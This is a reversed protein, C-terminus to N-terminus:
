CKAPAKAEARAKKEALLETVRTILGLADSEKIDEFSDWDGAGVYEDKIMRNKFTEFTVNERALLGKLFALPKGVSATDQTEEEADKKGGLEDQGAIDIGLFNRVARVFGRNEAIAAPFNAAFGNMNRATADALSTFTVEQGGTEINPLWSIRTEVACYSPSSEVIRHEVSRYGRLRALHKIGGLLILMQNDNLGETTSPIPQGRREFHEKNPVLFEPKIMKRWNITWDDNYHYEVGEVLGDANRTFKKIENSM